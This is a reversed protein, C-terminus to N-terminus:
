WRGEKRQDKWADWDFGSRDGRAMMRATAAWTGAAPAPRTPTPKRYGSALLDKYTERAEVIGCGDSSADENGQERWTIRVFGVAKVVTFTVRVTGAINVLEHKM